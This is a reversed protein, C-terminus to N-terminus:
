NWSLSYQSKIEQIEQYSLNKKFLFSREGNTGYERINLGSAYLKELAKKLEDKASKGKVYVKYSFEEDPKQFTIRLENNTKIIPNTIYFNNHHILMKTLENIKFEKRNSGEVEIVFKNELIELEGTKKFKLFNRLLLFRLM